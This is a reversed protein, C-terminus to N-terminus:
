FAVRLRFRGGTARFKRTEGGHRAMTTGTDTYEAAILSYRFSEHARRVMTVHSSSHHVTDHMPRRESAFYFKCRAAKSREGSTICLSSCTSSFQRQFKISIETSRDVRRSEVRRSEVRRSAVVFPDHSFTTVSRRATACIQLRERMESGRYYNLTISKAHHRVAELYRM